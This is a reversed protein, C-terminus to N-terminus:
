VFDKWCAAMMCLMLVRLDRVDGGPFSSANIMRSVFTDFPFYTNFADTYLKLPGQEEPSIYLAGSPSFRENGTTAMVIAWCSYDAKDEAILRAAKLYIKGYDKM